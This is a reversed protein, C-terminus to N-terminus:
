GSVSAGLAWTLLVVTFVMCAGLVAALTAAAAM